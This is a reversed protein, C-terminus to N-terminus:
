SSNLRRPSATLVIRPKEYTPESNTNPSIPLCCELRPTIKANWTSGAIMKTEANNAM